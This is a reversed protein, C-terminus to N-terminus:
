FNITATVNGTLQPKYPLDNFPKLVYLQREPLNVPSSCPLLLLLIGSSHVELRSENWADGM